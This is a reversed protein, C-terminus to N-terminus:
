VMQNIVFQSGINRNRNGSVNNGNFIFTGANRGNTANSGINVDGM